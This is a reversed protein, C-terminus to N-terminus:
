DDWVIQKNEYHGIRAGHDRWGQVYAAISVSDLPGPTSQTRKHVIQQAALAGFQNGPEAVMAHVMLSNELSPCLDIEEDPLDPNLMPGRIAWSFGEDTEVASRVDVIPTGDPVIADTKHESTFDAAHPREPDGYGSCRENRSFYVTDGGRGFSVFKVIRETKM